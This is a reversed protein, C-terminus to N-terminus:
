SCCRADINRASDGLLEVAPVRSCQDALALKGLDLAKLFLKPGIHEHEIFLKGGRLLTVEFLFEVRLNDVSCTHYEIDERSVRM